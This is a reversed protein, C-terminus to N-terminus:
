PIVRITDVGEFTITGVEGTVQVQVYDGNPLLSIVDDRRFKVMLDPIGDKDHDGINYPWTEAPVTGELLISSVVIDTVDHGEPIEVYVVVWKGKSKKNLTNPDFDITATINLIPLHLSFAAMDMWAGYRDGDYAHSRWTYTTNDSLATNLTVSTIGSIEEPIGTISNILVGGSYIEFDYTLGDSDPDIANYASLTPYLTDLSSGEDPSHLVPADPVDNATNVMFSALQMWGSNIEGDFAQARWYYTNNEILSVPVTWSTIQDAEEIATSAILNTMGADGYIEFEYTLVDGDIDTSNHVALVPNFVNVAGGDSPNALVPVTPADNATNVFFAIVDSWLSDALGDGAKARIYYWTNDSLGDLHWSTTGQEEPISGSSIYSPSDFTMETDIEFVYTLGASDPDTSNSVVADVSLTIIESSDSPSILVPASPADNATNVFFVAPIMWPGDILWDDAQARWHYYTNESLSLPVQWSTTGEGEFIGIESAVIQIFDPDLALEFNYTLNESDPDYANNVSLVPTITDVDSSDAPGSLTPASPMDNLVNVRFAARIMWDGYLLGDYARARWYYVANEQLDAPVQWSTTSVAESIMGSSAVLNQLGSDAYLEFEYTLNDDNPDSANNATLDPTLIEIDEGHQPWNLSPASPAGEVRFYTSALTSENGSIDARLIVLYDKASYSNTAIQQTNAHTEGMLLATQDVLTDYPTLEVVHVALISLDVQTLDVNGVNTVSYTVDVPDGQLLSQLNVSIDGLLLKEPVIESSITLTRTSSSLFAGSADRVELTVTYNGPPNTSTNWYSSFSHYSLPVLLGITNEETFLTQGSPDEISVTATLNEHIANASNNTITSTIMVPDNPHYEIKDLVVNTLIGESSVISIPVSERALPNLATDYATARVSYDGTLTNGTNWVFNLTTSELPNLTVPQADLSGALFGETDFVKVDVQLERLENLLDTVNVTILVDENDTYQTKDTTETLDLGISGILLDASASNNDERQEDISNDPDLVVHFSHNGSFGITDINFIIQEQGGFPIIQSVTYTNLLTGGSGPIGDYLDVKITDADTGLNHVTATITLPDGEKPAPHSFVIDTSTILLDPKVPPIVDISVLTSNNNENSEAILDEPDVVVHIYNTGTQGYTDWVVQVYSTGGSPLFAIDASGILSGTESDGDYFTVEVNHADANGINHILAGFSADQGEIIDPPIITIDSSSISLDPTIRTLSVSAMNNNEDLEDITNDPDVVVFIIGDGNILVQRSVTYSGYVPIYPIIESGILTAGSPDGEYFNVTVDNTGKLGNNRITAYVTKVNLNQPDDAVATVDEDSVAPDPKLTSCHRVTFRETDVGYGYTATGVVHVTANGPLMDEPLVLEATYSAGTMVFSLMYIGGEQFSISGDLSIEAEPDDATATVRVTDGPCYEKREVSIDLNLGLYYRALTLAWVAYANSSAHSWHGEQNRFSLLWSVGEAIEIGTEGAYSLAILAWATSVMNSSYELMVGWGGDPNQNAKLWAIAQDYRDQQYAPGALKYILTARATQETNGFGGDPAQQTNLYDLGRSVTSYAPSFGAQLLGLLALESYYLHSTQNYISSHQPWGGDALQASVLFNYGGAMAAQEDSSLGWNYNLTFLSESTPQIFKDNDYGPITGSWTGYRGRAYMVSNRTAQVANYQAEDGDYSIQLANLALNLLPVSTYDSFGVWSADIHNDIWQIGREVGDGTIGLKGLYYLTYGTMIHQSYEIIGYWRWGGDPMQYNFLSEATPMINSNDPEIELMMRLWHMRMFELGSRYFTRCYSKAALVRSDTPSTALALGVVVYTDLFYNSINGPYSGWYGDGNQSDTLWQVAALVVPAYKSEGTKMLATLVVGTSDTMSQSGKSYGWGGDLNQQRKLWEVANAIPTSNRDIGVSLLALVIRATGDANGWSGNASQGQFIKDLTNAYKGTTHNTSKYAMVAYANYLTSSSGWAKMTGLEDLDVQAEIMSAVAAKISRDVETNRCAQFIALCEINNTEVTETVADGSDAMLYLPSDLFLVTGSVYVPVTDTAGAQLNGSYTVEGFINDTGPEFTRNNNTDEFATIVFPQVTDQNGSNKITILANGDIVLTQEDSAVGTIDISAIVIDPGQPALVNIPTQANNNTEDMEVVTNFPDVEVAIDLNGSFIATDWTLQASLTSGAPIFVITKRGIIFSAGVNPDYISFEVLVEGADQNGINHIDATITVFDGQIPSQPTFTIDSSVLTLDPGQSAAVRITKYAKNNAEYAETISDDPDVTVYIDNNGEHGTSDWIRSVNATGNSLIEPIIIDSGIQIGGSAPDGLHFRVIVNEARGLGSNRVVASIEVSDGGKPNSPTFTINSSSVNLDVSAGVIFSKVAKNNAENFESISNQPDVLVYIDKPGGTVNENAIAATVNVYGGAPIDPIIDGSPLKVGGNQPDGDYVEVLLNSADTEGHNRVKIFIGVMIYPEPAPPFIEIDASVISLDPLTASTLNKSVRNDTENLEDISNLPDVQIFITHASATPITWNVNAPSNGFAPISTITTEGIYVGGASPDGDYFHILVNESLGPGINKVNATITITEGITPDPNSFTIDNSSVTLNPKVDALARLALATSYPDDDWSGNALQTSTLYDIADLLAQGSGAQGTPLSASPDSGSYVLADFALSTEYVTSPGPASGAQGTPLGTSTGFGGDANQMTLLYAVANDVATQLNFTGNYQSLAKLVLATMYVNSDDDQYFGWGGDANQNNTLYSLAYDITDPDSYNIAKLALLALATDLNNVEFDDYGGWADTFEDLYSLFLDYDTLVLLANTRESLYDTTDLPQSLLWAVAGTYSQSSTEGLAQMAEIASVTAPINDTSSTEDGWSGDPYQTSTLYNLGNTIAPTQAFASPILLFQIIFIFLITTRKM